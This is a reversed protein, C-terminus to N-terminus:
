PRTRRWTWLLCALIVLAGLLLNWTPVEGFFLWGAGTAFLISGYSLPALASAEAARYARLFCYQGAQALAGIGLLAPWTERAVPQWAHAAPLATLVTLGLTYFLMMVTPSERRLARTQVLALAGFFVSLFAAALGALPLAGPADDQLSAAIQPGTAIAVGAVIGAAGIWRARPVLEGLLLISLVMTAIPRLYGIANVMALPLAALAYFNANLAMANCLVRLGNRWPQHLALLDRRRKWILPLILLLGILARLFVVQVSPLAMGTMKVLVTMGTVLTMDSLLWALGLGTGAPEAAPGRDPEPQRPM